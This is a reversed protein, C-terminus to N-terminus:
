ILNQYHSFWNTQFEFPSRVLIRNKLIQQPIFNAHVFENILVEKKAFSRKQWLRSSKLQYPSQLVLVMEDTASILSSLSLTALSVVPISCLWTGDMCKFTTQLKPTGRAWGGFSLEHFHAIGMHRSSLPIVEPKIYSLSHAYPSWIWIRDRRETHELM